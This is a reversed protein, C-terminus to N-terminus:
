ATICGVCLGSDCYFKEDNYALQNVFKLVIQNKNLKNLPDYDGIKFYNPIFDTCGNIDLALAVIRNWVIEGGISLDNIYQIIADRVQDRVSLPDQNFSDVIVNFNLEVGVYKPRNVFIIDGYSLKQTIRENIADMLGQSILPSVGDVIINVTGNGLKGKEFIIDRVGPVSLAAKRIRLENTELASKETSLNYRLEDDNQRYSGNQIPFRNTCRIFGAIKRLPALEGINHDILVNTQVNSDSGTSTAVIGVGSSQNGVMDVSTITTYTTTSNRNKVVTGKPITLTTVAGNSDVSIYGNDILVQKEGDDYNKDILDAVTWNLRTDIYFYFNTDTSDTAVVASNRSIGVQFCLKDLDQGFARTPDIAREIYDLNDYIRSLESALVDLYGRTIGQQNFNNVPTNNQLRIKGENFINLYGRKIYM